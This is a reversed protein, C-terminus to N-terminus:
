RLKRWWRSDRDQSQFCLGRGFARRLIGKDMNYLAQWRKSKRGPHLHLKTARHARARRPWERKSGVQVSINPAVQQGATEYPAQALSHRLGFTITLKPTVRFSDQFYYEFQNAKFNRDIFSGVPLLAGNKQPTVKYVYNLSTEAVIGALNMAAYSYSNNFSTAVNPFGLAPYASPDLDQGTNALSDFYEGASSSASDFSYENTNTNCHILRYDVGFQFDHKGHTWSMDDLLNTSPVHLNTTYTEATPNSVSALTM